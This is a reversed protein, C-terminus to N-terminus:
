AFLKILDREFWKTTYNKKKAVAKYIKSEIGGESFLWYLVAEKDRAYNVMRDKGQFYTTASFAINFNVICDATMLNVGERGAVLQCIYTLNDSANFEYDKDTWRNEFAKKLLRGEQEYHYYIAIKRDWFNNLIYQVKFDDLVRYEGSETKVTGSCIQHIKSQLKAPDDALIVEEDKMVYVKDRVIVKVLRRIAEPMPIELIVERTLHMIGAEKQTLTIMFPSVEEMIKAKDARSYDNVDFGKIKKKRVDVYDKAWKYFNIYNRWPSYASVWFQHFLQSYSEPSPTGSLYLVPLNGIVQKVAQATKSPKPFSAIGSHAEDLVVVDILQQLETGLNHLQEYNLIHLSMGVGGTFEGWEKWVGPMAKKKTLFLVTKFGALQLIRFVTWTKGTRVEMALYCIGHQPLIAAGRQALEEQKARDLDIM